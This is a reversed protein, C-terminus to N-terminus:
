ENYVPLRIIFTSGKNRGASEAWIEGNHLDVLKKSIYLGLGPGEIYVDMDKGYREIKGFKKFIDHLEKKTLGVGTDKISIEIYDRSERLHISIKGKKPTNNIANVIVNLIIERIRKEDLNLILKEPLIMEIFLNRERILPELDEICSRIIKIIDIPEKELEIKNLDLCSTTIFNEILNKLRNGGRHILELFNIVDEEVIERYHNLLFDSASVISTLPTKLEHSLRNLLDDGLQELEKLFKEHKKKLNLREAKDYIDFIAILDAFKNNWIIIKSFHYGKVIVGANTKVYYSIYPIFNVGGKEIEKVWELFKMKDDEDIIQLFDDFGWTLIENKSNELIHALSNNVYVCKNNQVVTIGISAHDAALIFREQSIKMKQYLEQIEIVEKIMISIKDDAIYIFLAKYHRMRGKIQLDYELVQSQKSGVIENVVNNIKDHLDQPMVDLLKRDLIEEPPLYLDSKKGKYEIITTDNKILFSLDPIFEIITSIIEKPKTLDRVLIAVTATTLNIISIEFFKQKDQITLDFRIIQPQKEDIVRRIANFPIKGQEQPFVETIKKGILLERPLNLEEKKCSFDLITNDHTILFFADSVAGLIEKLDIESQNLPNKV